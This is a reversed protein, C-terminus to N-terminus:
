RSMPTGRGVPGATGLRLAAAPPRDGAEAIGRAEGIRRRAEEAQASLEQFREFQDRSATRRAEDQERSLQAVWSDMVRGLAPDEDRAQSVLGESGRTASFIDSSLQTRCSNVENSTQLFCQSPDLADSWQQRYRSLVEGLAAGTQADYYTGGTIDAVAALAARDAADIDFGVVDVVVDIGLDQLAAASAVPDGDCTEIGDSILIVRSAPAEVGESVDAEAAAVLLPAHNPAGPM